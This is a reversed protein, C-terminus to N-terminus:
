EEEQLGAQILETILGPLFARLCELERVSLKGPDFDQGFVLRVGDTQTDDQM